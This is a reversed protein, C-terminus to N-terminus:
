ACATHRRCGSAVSCQRTQGVGRVERGSPLRSSMRSSRKSRAAATERTGDDGDLFVIIQCTLGASRFYTRVEEITAAIRRVENYAPVILTVDTEISSM